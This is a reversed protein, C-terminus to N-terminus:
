PLPNEKIKNKYEEIVRIRQIIVPNHNSIALLEHLLALVDQPSTLQASVIDACSENLVQYNFQAWLADMPSMGETSPMVLKTCSEVMHGVEHAAIVRRESPNFQLMWDEHFSFIAMWLEIPLGTSPPPLAWGYTVAPSNMEMIPLVLVAWQLKEPTLGIRHTFSQVYAALEIQLAQGKKSPPRSEGFLVASGMIVLGLAILITGIAQRLNM